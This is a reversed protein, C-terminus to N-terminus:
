EGGRAPPTPTPTLRVVPCRLIEARLLITAVVSEADKMVDSDTFRLVTFGSQRLSYDRKEDALIRAPNDHSVGDIEIVLRPAFSVFDVIYPAIPQQRRFKLGAAKGQM